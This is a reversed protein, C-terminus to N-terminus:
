VKYGKTLVEKMEKLIFHVYKPGFTIGDKYTYKQGGRLCRM